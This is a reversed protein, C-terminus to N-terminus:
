IAIPEPPEKGEAALAKLWAVTARKLERVAHEESRGFASLTPFELLHAIYGEDEASWFVEIRYKPMANRTIISM